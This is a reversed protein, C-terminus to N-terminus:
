FLAVINTATTATARVHSCAVPLICGAPVDSFVVTAGAPTTIAVDGAAGIYLARAWCAVGGSTLPNSDHPTVAAADLAVTAGAPDGLHRFAM